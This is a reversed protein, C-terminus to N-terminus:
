KPTLCGDKEPAREQGIGSAWGSAAMGTGKDRSQTYIHSDEFRLQQCGLSLVTSRGRGQRYSRFRILCDFHRLCQLSDSGLLAAVWVPHLGPPPVSYESWYYTPLGSSFLTALYEEPITSSRPWLYLQLPVPCYYQSSYSKLYFINGEAKQEIRESSFLGNGSRRTWEM